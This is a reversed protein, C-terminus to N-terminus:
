TYVRESSIVYRLALLFLLSPANWMEVEDWVQALILRPSRILDPRGAQGAALTEIRATDQQTSVSREREQNRRDSSRADCRGERGPQM